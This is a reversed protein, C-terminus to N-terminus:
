NAVKRYTPSVSGISTSNTRSAGRRTTRTTRPGGFLYDWKKEDIEIGPVPTACKELLDAEWSTDSNSEETPWTPSRLSNNVNQVVSGNQELLDTYVSSYSRNVDDVPHAYDGALHSRSQPSSSVPPTRGNGFLPQTLAEPVPLPNSRGFERAAERAADAPDARYQDNSGSNTGPPTRVGPQNDGDGKGNGPPPNLPLPSACLAPLLLCLWNSPFHGTPDTYNTSAGLGYTYRNAPGSPTGPLPYDDRSAFGGMAPSCWRATMNVQGTDPDTWDGQYGLSHKTGSTATVTGAPDLTAVLDGRGDSM